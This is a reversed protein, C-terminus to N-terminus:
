RKELAVTVAQERPLHLGRRYAVQFSQEDMRATLRAMFHENDARLSPLMPHRISRRLSEAAGMLMAGREYDFEEIELYGFYDLVIALEWGAGIRNLLNLAERLDARAGAFDDARRRTNGRMGIGIGCEWTLNAAQCLPVSEGLYLLAGNIDGLCYSSYGMFNLAIAQSAVDDIKRALPLVERLTVLAAESNGTNLELWSQTILAGILLQPDRLERASELGKATLKRCTDMDGTAMNLRALGLTCYTMGVPDKHRRFLDLGRNLFSHALNFESAHWALYGAGTLAGARRLQGERSEDSEPHLADLTLARSLAALGEIYRGKVEWFIGLAGALRIARGSGHIGEEDWAFARSLANRFNDQEAELRPVWRFIEGSSRAREALNAFYDFHRKFLAEAEEPQLQAAAFERLTELLRFRVEGNREEVTALSCECLRALDEAADENQCVAEAAEVTCGSAFVSLSAFFHQLPQSLLEYSWAIAARLTRHREPVGKQRTALFDAELHNELRDLIQNPSFMLSRAAALELALPIGDLRRCLTAVAAANREDLRFDLRTQRARDVFLAAGAYRDMEEFPTLEEPVPLPPVPLESEGPLNLRQRSTVVVALTPVSNLLELLFGSGDEALQEFNDLLLLGSQASLAEHLQQQPTIRPVNPLKLADRVASPLLAAERVEALPVFWVAGDYQDVLGRAVEISLRTKGAGSPGTLSILRAGEALLERLANSEEERGFFKNYTAPLNAPPRSPTDVAEAEETHAEEVEPAVTPLVLKPAAAQKLPARRIARALARGEDSVVEGIRRLAGQLTEYQRIAADLEGKAALARMRALHWPENSPLLRLAQQATAALKEWEGLEEYQALLSSTVNRYNEELRRAEDQAWDEYFGPLLPGTYLAFAKELHPVADGLSAASMEAEFTAVDTAITGPCLSVLERDANLVTGSGAEGELQRRLSSLSASLSNRAAEPAAEPWFLGCLIERPQPHSRLALYCLLAATKHTRFRTVVEAEHAGQLRPGNFMELHWLPSPM